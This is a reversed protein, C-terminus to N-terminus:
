LDNEDEHQFAPYDLFGNIFEEFTDALRRVTPPNTEHAYYMVPYEGDVLGRSVDFLVQDSDAEMFFEAFCLMGQSPPPWQGGKQRVSRQQAPTLQEFPEFEHFFPHQIGLQVVGGM